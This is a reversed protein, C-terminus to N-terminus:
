LNSMLIFHIIIIAGVAGISVLAGRVLQFLLVIQIDVRKIQNILLIQLPDALEPHGGVWFLYLFFDMLLHCRTYFQIKIHRTAYLGNHRRVAYGCSRM